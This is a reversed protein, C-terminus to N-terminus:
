VYISEGVLRGDRSGEGVLSVALMVSIAMYRFDISCGWVGSEDVFREIGRFGEEVSEVGESSRFGKSVHRRGIIEKYYVARHEEVFRSRCGGHRLIFTDTDSSHYVEGDLAQM